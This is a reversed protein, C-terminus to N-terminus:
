LGMAAWTEAGVKGDIEHLHHKKQWAKVAAYTKLGFNGDQKTGVFKQIRKVVVSDHGRVGSHSKLTHDDLGYWQGVKLPFHTKAKPKAKHPQGFTGGDDLYHALAKATKPGFLGDGKVGIIGQLTKVVTSFGASLVGDAPTGLAKQLAKITKPGASGDQDVGLVKQLEKIHKTDLIGNIEQDQRKPVIHPPPSVKKGLEPQRNVCCLIDARYRIRFFAGRTGGGSGDTTNFGFTHVYPLSPDNSIIIEVHDAVGDRHGSLVWDYTVLDGFHSQYSTIRRGARMANAVINPVYPFMAWSDLPAPGMGAAKTIVAQGKGCYSAGPWDPPPSAAWVKVGRNDRYGNWTNIQSKLNTTASM